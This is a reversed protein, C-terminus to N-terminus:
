EDPQAIAKIFFALAAILIPAHKELADRRAQRAEFEELVRPSGPRPPLRSPQHNMLPRLEKWARAAAARKAASTM